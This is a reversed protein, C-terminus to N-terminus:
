ILIFLCNHLLLQSPKFLVQMAYEHGSGDESCERAEGTGVVVEREVSEQVNHPILIKYTRTM